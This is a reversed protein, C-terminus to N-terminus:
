PAPDAPDVAIIASTSVGCEGAEFRASALAREGVGLGEVLDIDNAYAFSAGALGDLVPHAADDLSVEYADGAWGDIAVGCAQAGGNVFRVGTLTDMLATPAQFRAIDDGQLVVGGGSGRFEVLTNFTTLGDVPAGPNVLWVVDYGAVDGAVLAGPLPLSEEDVRDVKAAGLEARLDDVLLDVDDLDEGLNNDDRVVLVRPADADAAWRAANVALRRADAAAMAREEPGHLTLLITLSRGASACPETSAVGVDASASSGAAAGQERLVDDIRLPWGDDGRALDFARVRVDLAGLAGSQLVACQTLTMDDNRTTWLATPPIQAAGDVVEWVFELPDGDPDSGQACLEIGECVAHDPAPPSAAVSLAPAQNTAPSVLDVSRAPGPCQSILLIETTLGEALDVARAHAPLCFASPDETAGRLPESTINYCGPALIFTHDGYIPGAVAGVASAGSPLFLEEARVIARAPEAGVIAAATECDAALVTYRFGGVDDTYNTAGRVLLSASAPESPQGCALAAALSAVLPTWPRHRHM